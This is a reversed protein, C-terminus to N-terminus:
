FPKPFLTMNFLRTLSSKMKKAGALDDDEYYKAKVKGDYRYQKKMTPKYAGVFTSFDSDYPPDLFMFDDNNLNLQDIFEEFDM